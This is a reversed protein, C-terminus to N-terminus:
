RSMGGPFRENRAADVVGRRGHGRLDILEVGGADVATNEDLHRAVDAAVRGDEKEITAGGGIEDGEGEALFVAQLDFRSWGGNSEGIADGLSACSDDASNGDADVRVGFGDVEGHGLETPVVGDESHVPKLFVVRRDVPPVLREREGIVFTARMGETAECATRGQPLGRGSRMLTEVEDAVALDFLLGFTPEDIESAQYEGLNRDDGGRGDTGWRRDRPDM